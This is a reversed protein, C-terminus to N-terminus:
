LNQLTILDKITIDKNHYRLRNHTKNKYNIAAHPCLQICAMCQECQHQFTPIENVIEINSVPCVKECIGCAKCQPSTLYGADRLKVKKIRMKYYCRIIYIEKRVASQKSYQIDNAIKSINVKYNNEIAANTGKANYFAIANDGMIISRGYDLQKGKKTLISNVQRLSNGQFRGCTAVAFCYRVHSKFNLASIFQEVQLPLGLFYVPFVFGIREIKESISDIFKLSMPLIKCNSMSQSIDMAAKLSNGTGTFCYIITTDM